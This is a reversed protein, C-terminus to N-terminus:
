VKKAVVEKIDTSPLFSKRSFTENMLTLVHYVAKITPAPINISDAHRWINGCLTEIEMMREERADRLMSTVMSPTTKVIEMARSPADAPVPLGTAVGIRYIEATLCTVLTLGFDSNAILQHTDLGLIATVPNWAGNILVKMWREAEMNEGEAFKSDLSVLTKVGSKESCTAMRKSNYVGFKCGLSPDVVSAQKVVGPSVESCNAYWVASIIPNLPFAARMSKEVGIGNQTMVIITKPRITQEIARRMLDIDQTVVRNACIIYDFEICRLEHVSKAVRYPVFKGNGWLSTEMYFGNKKVSDYNSRCVVSVRMFTHRSIRWGLIGGVAGAGFILVEIPRETKM